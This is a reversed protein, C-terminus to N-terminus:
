IFATSIIAIVSFIATIICFIKVVQVEKYGSLELHHHFPSMKFIRKGYKKYYYVQIIVSLSEIVYIIGIIVIIFHMNMSIAIFSVIAGLAMSGTDGMFAKAPYKNIRLFGLCAGCTALSLMAITIYSLNIAIIAFGLMVISTVSSALGDLGDTLNVSNTTAVIVLATLPIYFIGADLKYSTFPLVLQTNLSSNVLSLYSVIVSFIIQIVLKQRSTLGLNRKNIVKVYDDAFGLLAFLLLYALFILVMYINSRNLILASLSIAIIFVIGGMTPTGAKSLHEKPGEQRIEQGLKFKRLMDLIKPSIVFAISFSFLFSLIYEIIQSDTIM